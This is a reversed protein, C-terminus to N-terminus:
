LYLVFGRPRAAAGGAFHSRWARLCAGGTRVGSAARRQPQTATRFATRIGRGAASPGRFLERGVDRKARPSAAIVCRPAHLRRRARPLPLPETAGAAVGTRARGHQSWRVDGGEDADEAHLVPMHRVHENGRVRRAPRSASVVHKSHLTAGRRERRAAACAAWSARRCRASAASCCDTRSRSCAAESISCLPLVSVLPNAQAARARAAALRGDRPRSVCAVNRLEARWSAAAAQVLHSARRLVRNDCSQCAGTAFLRRWRCVASLTSHLVRRLVTCRPQSPASQAFSHSAHHKSSRALGNDSAARRNAPAVVTPM